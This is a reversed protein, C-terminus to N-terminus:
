TCAISTCFGPLGAPSRTSRVLPSAALPTSSPRQSRDDHPPHHPHRLHHPHHHYHATPWAATAQEQQQKEQQNSGHPLLLLQLRQRRLQHQQKWAHMSRMGLRHPCPPLAFFPFTASHPAAAAGAAAEGAPQERPAAPAAAEAETAPAAAEVCAYFADRAPAAAEVCAYFADRAKYCRDRAASLVETVVASGPALPPTSRPREADTSSSNEGM